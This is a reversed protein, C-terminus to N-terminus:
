SEVQVQALDEWLMTLTQAEKQWYHRSQIELTVSDTKYTFHAIHTSKGQIGIDRETAILLNFFAQCYEELLAMGKTLNNIALM